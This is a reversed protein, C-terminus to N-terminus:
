KWDHLGYKDLITKLEGNARMARIGESLLHTYKLSSSKAPSCAIYMPQPEGLLGANIIKGELGMERIKNEAVSVSDVTAVIKGSMIKKFNIELGDNATVASIHGAAEAQKVYSDFLAGYSYNGIIGVSITDLAHFDGQFRWPQDFRVYFAQTDMGFSEETFVFDPADEKYAGVVCDAKGAKVDLLAQTWAITQYDLVHRKTAFIKQAIEIIYGPRSSDPVGNMPYWVDARFSVTDAYSSAFPTGSVLCLLTLVHTLKM